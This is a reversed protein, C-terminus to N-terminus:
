ERDEKQQEMGNQNSEQNEQFEFRNKENEYQMQYVHGDSVKSHDTSRGPSTKPM